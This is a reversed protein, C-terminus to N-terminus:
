QTVVREVVSQIEERLNDQLDQGVGDFFLIPDIRKEIEVDIGLNALPEELAAALKEDTWGELGTADVFYIGYTAM